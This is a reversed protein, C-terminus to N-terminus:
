KVKVFYLRTKIHRTDFTFGKQGPSNVGNGGLFGDVLAIKKFTGQEANGQPFGYLNLNNTFQSRFSNPAPIQPNPSGDKYHHLLM